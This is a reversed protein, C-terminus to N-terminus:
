LRPHFIQFFGDIDIHKFSSNKRVVIHFNGYGSIQILTATLGNVLEKVFVIKFLVNFVIMGAFSVVNFHNYSDIFAFFIDEEFAFSDVNRDREAFLREAIM